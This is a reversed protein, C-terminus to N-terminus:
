FSALELWGEVFALDGRHDNQFIKVFENFSIRGPGNREEIERDQADLLALRALLAESPESHDSKPSSPGNESLKQCPSYKDQLHEENNGQEVHVSQLYTAHRNECHETKVASSAGLRMQLVNFDSISNPRNQPLTPDRSLEASASNEHKTPQDYNEFDKAPNNIPSSVIREFVPTESNLNVLPMEDRDGVKVAYGSSKLLQHLPMNLVSIDLASEPTDKKEAATLNSLSSEASLDGNASRFSQELTGLSNVAECSGSGANDEDHDNCASSSRSMPKSKESKPEGVHKYEHYTDIKFLHQRTLSTNMSDDVNKRKCFASIANSLQNRLAKTEWVQMAIDEQEKFLPDLIENLAQQTVQYLIERGIDLEAEPLEYGGWREGVPRSSISTNSRNEIDIDDEFRVKSSSRSRQSANPPQVTRNKSNTNAIQGHISSNSVPPVSESINNFLFIGSSTHDSKVPNTSSAERQKKNNSVGTSQDNVNREEEENLQVHSAKSEARNKNTGSLEAPFEFGEEEDVYFHRRQWRQRIADHDRQSQHDRLFTESDVINDTAGVSNSVRDTSRSAASSQLLMAEFDFLGPQEDELLHNLESEMSEHATSQADSPSRDVVQSISHEFDAFGALVQEASFESNDSFSNSSRRINRLSKPIANGIIDRRDGFDESSGLVVDVGSVQADGYSDLLKEGPVRRETSPILDNFAASLPQGSQILALTENLALQEEQVAILDHTIDKQMAYYARFMRLFDKRSVYGDGDVDYGDFVQRLKFERDHSHLNSLGKIFEEFGILGDHNSDYFAFLRDYILNSAPRSTYSQPVFSKDFADRDIAAGFQNPDEVWSSNALCKFQEWLAEIEAADYRSEDVLRKKSNPPLRDPLLEPKGPYLVPEALKPNGLFHAPVKVKYFMHTIPHDNVAECDSCLDYDPCNACRWRIGRIPKVDCSDCSVGRHIYGDQKAQDEAIYYLISKLSNGRGDINNSDTRLSRARRRHSTYGYGISDDHLTPSQASSMNTITDEREGLARANQVRPNVQRSNICNEVAQSVIDPRLGRLRFREILFEREQVNLQPVTHQPLLRELYRTVFFGEIYERADNADAATLGFDNCLEHVTPLTDITLTVLIDEGASGRIVLIGLSDIDQSLRNELSLADGNSAPLVQNDSNSTLGERLETEDNGEVLNRRLRLSSRPPHSRRVADRRRLSTQQGDRWVTYLTYVGYVVLTGTLTLVVPRYRSLSTTHHSVTMM